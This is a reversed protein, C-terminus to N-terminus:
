EGNDVVFHFALWGEKEMKKQPIWGWSQTLSLYEKEQEKLIGSTIVETIKGHIPVLENWAQIQESSIMNMLVTINEDKLKLAEEPLGFYIKMHNHRANKRAHEVAKLDCDIGFVSKAGWAEACLSLVGSGCGVDLVSLDKVVNQMMDVVLQTTPHSLDGFGPGPEMKIAATGVLPILLFQDQFTGNQLAWQQEWDIDPLEASEIALIFKLDNLITPLDGKSLLYIRQEGDEEISYLIELGASELKSWVYEQDFNPNIKLCFINTMCLFYILM